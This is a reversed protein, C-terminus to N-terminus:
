ASCKWERYVKSPLVVVCRDACLGASSVHREYVYITRVSNKGGALPVLGLAFRNGCLM